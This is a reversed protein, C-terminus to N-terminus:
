GFLRPLLGGLTFLQMLPNSGGGGFLGGFLGGGSGGSSGSSGGSGGIIVCCRAQIKQTLASILLCIFLTAYM